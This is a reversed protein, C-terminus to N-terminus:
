GSWLCLMTVVDFQIYNIDVYLLELTLGPSHTTQNCWMLGYTSNQVAKTFTSTNMHRRDGSQSYLLTLPTAKLLHEHFMASTKDFEYLIITKKTKKELVNFENVPQRLDLWKNLWPSFVCFCFFAKRKDSLVKKLAPSYFYLQLSNRYLWHARLSRTLM